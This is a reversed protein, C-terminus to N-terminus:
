FFSFSSFRKFTKCLSNDTVSDNTQTNNMNPRSSNNHSTYTYDSNSINPQKMDDNKKIMDTYLVGEFSVSKLPSLQISGNEICVEASNLMPSHSKDDTSEIIRECKSQNEKSLQQRDSKNRNLIRRRRFYAACFTLLLILMSCTIATGIFTMLHSKVHVCDTTFQFEPLSCLDFKERKMDSIPQVNQHPSNNENTIFVSTMADASSSLSSKSDSQLHNLHQKIPQTNMFLKNSGTTNSILHECHEGTHTKPCRCLSNNNIVFCTGINCVNVPCASYVVQFLYGNSIQSLHSEGRCSYNGSDSSIVQEIRLESHKTSSTIKINPHVSMDIPKDDKFWKIQPNTEGQVKCKLDFSSRINITVLLIKAFSGCKRFPMVTLKMSLYTFSM